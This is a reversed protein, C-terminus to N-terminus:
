GRAGMGRRRPISPVRRVGRALFAAARRLVIRSNEFRLAKVAERFPMWVYGLHEESTRVTWAPAEALYIIADKAIMKGERQFHFRYGERFGDIFRLSTIGTEERIERRATAHEREGAEVHGRPFEWYGGPYRLLLYHVERRPPEGRRVILAGVSREYTNPAIAATM